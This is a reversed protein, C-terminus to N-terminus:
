RIKAGATVLENILTQKNKYGYIISSVLVVEGNETVIDVGSVKYKMSTSVIIDEVSLSVSQWVLGKKVPATLVGDELHIRFRPRSFFGYLFVSILFSLILDLWMHNFGLMGKSWIRMVGITICIMLGIRVIFLGKRIRLEM